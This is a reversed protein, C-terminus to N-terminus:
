PAARQYRYSNKEHKKGKREIIGYNCLWRLATYVSPLSIRVGSNLMSLWLAEAEIFDRSFFLFRLVEKRQNTFVYDHDHCFGEIDKIIQKLLGPDQKDMVRKDLDAPYEAHM